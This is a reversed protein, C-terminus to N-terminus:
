ANLVGEARRTALKDAGGMEQAKQRRRELEQRLGDLYDSV